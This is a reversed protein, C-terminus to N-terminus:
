DIPGIRFKLEEEFSNDPFLDETFFPQILCDTQHKRAFKKFLTQSAKNSPTITAEVFRIQNSKQQDLLAQLLKSAIGQGQFDPDVGIQWVFITDTQEPPVFGTIFGVLQNEHKAVVCTKSFYSSMMIYKYASNEDLTSRNVLKWMAAGDKSSPPAFQINDIKAITETQNNIIVFEKGTLLLLM